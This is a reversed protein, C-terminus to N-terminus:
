ARDIPTPTRRARNTSSARRMSAQARHDGGEAARDRKEADRHRVETSPQEAGRVMPHEHGGHHEHTADDCEDRLDDRQQRAPRRTAASRRSTRMPAGTTTAPTAGCGGPLTRRCSAHRGRRDFARVSRATPIASSPRPARDELAHIQRHMDAFQHAHMPGFPIPLDVSSRVSAFM